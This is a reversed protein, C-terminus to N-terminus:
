RNNWRSDFRMAGLWNKLISLSARVASDVDVVMVVVVVSARTKPLARDCASAGKERWLDSDVVAMRRAGGRCDPDSAWGAQGGCRSAGEVDVVDVDVGAEEAEGEEEEESGRLSMYAESFGACHAVHDLLSKWLRFPRPLLPASVPSDALLLRELGPPPVRMMSPGIVPRVTCTPPM